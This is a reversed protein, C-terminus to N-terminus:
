NGLAGVGDNDDGFGAPFSYANRLDQVFSTRRGLATIKYKYSAKSTKLPRHSQWIM